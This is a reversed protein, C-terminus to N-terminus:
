ISICHLFARRNDVLLLHFPECKKKKLTFQMQFLSISTSCLVLPASWPRRKWWFSRNFLCFFKSLAQIQFRIDGGNSDVNPLDPHSIYRSIQILNKYSMYTLYAINVHTCINNVSSGNPQSPFLSPYISLYIDSYWLYCGRLNNVGCVSFLDNWSLLNLEM